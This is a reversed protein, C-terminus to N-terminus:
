CRRFLETFNDLSLGFLHVQEEEDHLRRSPINQYRSVVNPIFANAAEWEFAINSVDSIASSSLFHDTPPYLLRRSPMGTWRWQKNLKCEVRNKSALRDPPCDDTKRSAIYSKQRMSCPLSFSVQPSFVQAYWGRVFPSTFESRNSQGIVLLGSLASPMKDFVRIVLRISQIVRKSYM